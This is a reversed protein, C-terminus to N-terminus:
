LHKEFLMGEEIFGCDKYFKQAIINTIETSVEIECCHLKRCEDIVMEILLKGIGQRRYQRSVVLEDLTACPNPNLATQRTYFQAFGVVMDDKKAVLMYSNQAKYLKDLSNTLEQRNIGEETYLADILEGMLEEISSLDDVSAFTISVSQPM